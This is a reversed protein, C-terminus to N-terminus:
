RSTSVADTIKSFKFGQGKAWDVIQKYADFWNYEPVASREHWNIAVGGQRKYVESLLQISKEVVQSTSLKLSDFLVGDMLLLPVEWLLRNDSFIVPFPRAMGGRFGAVGNWGLTSDVVIGSKAVKRLSNLGGPLSLWHQRSMVVKSGLKNELSILEEEFTGDVLSRFSGHIGVSVSYNRVLELLEGFLKSTIKYSPDILNQLIGVAPNKSKIAAALFVTTPGFNSDFRLIEELSKLYSDEQIRFPHEFRRQKIRLQPTSKLYDVDHTLYLTPILNSQRKDLRLHHEVFQHLEDELRPLPYVECQPYGLCSGGIQEYLGDAWALAESVLPDPLRFDEPLLYLTRLCSIFQKLKLSKLDKLM